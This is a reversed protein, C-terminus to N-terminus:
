SLLKFIKLISLAKLIFYFANKIMKLLCIFFFKKSPSLGVRVFKCGDKKEVNEKLFSRNFIETICYNSQAIYNFLCKQGILITSKRM